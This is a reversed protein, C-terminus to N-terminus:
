YETRIVSMYTLINRMHLCTQPAAFFFLAKARWWLWGEGGGGQISLSFRRRGSSGSSGGGGCCCFRRFCAQPHFPRTVCCRSSWGREGRSTAIILFPQHQPHIQLSHCLVSHWEQPSVSLASSPMRLVSRIRTPRNFPKPFTSALLSPLMGHGYYEMSSIVRCCDHGGGSRLVTARTFPLPTPRTGLLSHPGLRAVSEQSQDSSSKGM